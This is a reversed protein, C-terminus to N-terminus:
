AFFARRKPGRDEAPIVGMNGLTRWVMEPDISQEPTATVAVVDRGRPAATASAAQHPFLMVGPCHLSAILQAPGTDDAVFFSGDHALAALQLLDTKGALNVVNPDARAIEYGLDSLDPGGVVVAAVGVDGIRAAIRAYRDVPWGGDGQMAPALLAFAGSLGYWSPQMNASDKRAELAWSLDPPRREADVGADSLQQAYADIPHLPTKAGRRPSPPSSLKRKPAGLGSHLKKSADTGDLDFVFSFKKSKLQKVFSKRAEADTYADDTIVQDFYPAAKALRVLDGATLLTVEARPHADRIAAFAADANVFAGLGERKIILISAKRSGFM